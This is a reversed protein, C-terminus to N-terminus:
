FRPKPADATNGVHGAADREVNEIATKNEQVWLALAEEDTLPEIALLNMAVASKLSRDPLDRRREYAALTMVYPNGPTIEIFVWGRARVEDSHNRRDGIKTRPDRCPTGDPWHSELLVAKASTTKIRVRDPAPHKALYGERAKAMADQKANIRTPETAHEWARVSEVQACHGVLYELREIRAELDKKFLAM